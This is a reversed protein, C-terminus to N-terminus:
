SLFAKNKERQAKLTIKSGLSKKFKVAEGKTPVKDHADLLENIHTTDM